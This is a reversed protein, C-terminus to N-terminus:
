LKMGGFLQSFGNNEIYREYYTDKWEGSKAVERDMSSPRLRSAYVIFSNLTIFFRKSEEKTLNFSAYLKIISEPFEKQMFNIFYYYSCVFVPLYLLARSFGERGEEYMKIYEIMDDFSDAIMDVKKKKCCTCVICYLAMMNCISHIYKKGSKNCILAVTGIFKDKKEKDKNRVMFGQNDLLWWVMYRRFNGRYRKSHLCVLCSTLLLITLFIGRINSVLIMPVVSCLAMVVVFVTIRRVAYKQWKEDTEVDRRYKIEKIGSLM